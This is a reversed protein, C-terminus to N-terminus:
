ATMGAAELLAAFRLTTRDAYPASMIQVGIPLGSASRGIPVVTSPLGAYTAISAWALQSGYPIEQNDVRLVRKSWDPETQYIFAPTSFVPSLIVDAAEFVKQWGRRCHLQANQLALWAHADMPRADPTGITIVTNLMRIYDAMMSELDPFDDAKDSVPVGAAELQGVLADLAARTDADVPAGPMERIIRVRHGALVAHRAAPLDLRYPSGAEPGAIIDLTAAVDAVKRAMPGVVALPADLGDAGPPEHGRLPVIGYTPKHGVVGCMHAPMRISGGIDSGIELPVMGAALAAAAGGSSGGPSRSPDFPNVTRGYVPNESQWDGLAVPVNTLGLIVAGEAKLRQVAVADRPSKMDKAFEFGWTSPLGEVNNSEKVTMPVGLLRRPDDASRSADIAKAAARARDFDRVVVANIRGDLAEIRAIAADAAELASIEGKRVAEATELAGARSLDLGSTTAMNGGSAQPGASPTACGALWLGAVAGAGGMVARRSPHHDPVTM